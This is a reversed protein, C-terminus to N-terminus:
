RAASYFTRGLMPGNDCTQAYNMADPEPHPVDLLRALDRAAHVGEGGHAADQAREQRHREQDDCGRETHSQMRLTSPSSTRIPHGILVDPEHAQILHCIEAPRVRCITSRVLRESSLFEGHCFRFDYDYVAM